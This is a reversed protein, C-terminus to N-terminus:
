SGLEEDSTVWTLRNKQLRNHNIYKLLSHPVVQRIPQALRIADKKALTVCTALGRRVLPESYRPDTIDVGILLQNEILRFVGDLFMGTFHQGDAIDCCLGFAKTAIDKNELFLKRLKAVASFTSKGTTSKAIRIKNSHVLKKLERSVEDGAVVSAKFDDTPEVNKRGIKNVERFLEAEKKASSSNRLICLLETVDGRQRAAELRHGGDVVYYMGRRFAVELVGEANNKWNTALHKVHPKNLERQYSEDIALQDLRLTIITRDKDIRQNIQEM